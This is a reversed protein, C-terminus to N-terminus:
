DEIKYGYGWVTKIEVTSGGQRIKKRLRKVLDDIARLDGAYTYGWIQDLLQERKFVKQRHQALFLLLDFEKGTFDIVGQPGVVKREDPYIRLDQCCVALTEVQSVGTPETPETTKVISAVPAVDGTEVSEGSVACAKASRIRRLINKIRALLERPSFPKSLYDDSGLELGLVRDIEEDKASVIIIPLDSEKRLVKCVELGDMGPMMIDLVLLDPMRERIAQLVEEGNAFSAIEFGEKTLYKSILDRIPQEDDAIYILSM